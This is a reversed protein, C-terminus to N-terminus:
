EVASYRIGRILVFMTSALAACVVTIIGMRMPNAFIWIFGEAETLVCATVNMLTHALIPAILSGFKEYLYALMLGSIFGYIMQVVNGHYIGFFVASFLMAHGMSSGVRKRRYILGRFMMEEVVPIVIGVCLLQMPFPPSYLIATAQQYAESQAGINSLILINNLGIALPISIGAVLIYKEWSVRHDMSFGMTQEEKRDKRMMWVFIPVSVISVVATIETMYKILIDNAMQISQNMMDDVTTVTHVLEPTKICVYITIILVQVIFGVVERVILPSLYRWFMQGFTRKQM